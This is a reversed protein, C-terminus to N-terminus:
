ALEFSKCFVTESGCVLPKSLHEANPFGEGCARTGEVFHVCHECTFRLEYTQAELVFREDTVHRM